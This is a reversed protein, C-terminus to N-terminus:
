ISGIIPEIVVGTYKINSTGKKSLCPRMKQHEERSCTDVNRRHTEIYNILTTKSFMVSQPPKIKYMKCLLKLARTSLQSVQPVRLLFSKMLHARLPFVNEDLSPLKMNYLACPFSNPRFAVSCTSPFVIRCSWLRFTVLRYSVCWSFVRCSSVLRSVRFSSVLCSVVFHSLVRCSVVHCSVVHHSTLFSPKASPQPSLASPDLVYHSISHGCLWLTRTKQLYKKSPAISTM